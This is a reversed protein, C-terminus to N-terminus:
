RTASGKEAGQGTLVIINDPRHEIWHCTAAYDLGLKFDDSRQGLSVTWWHRLSQMSIGQGEAKGLGRVLHRVIHLAINESTAPSVAFAEKRETDKDRSSRRNM